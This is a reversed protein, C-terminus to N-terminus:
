KGKTEMARPHWYLYNIKECIFIITNFFKKWKRFQEVKGIFTQCCISRIIVCQFLTTCMTFLHYCFKFFHMNFNEKSGKCHTGINCDVSSSSLGILMEWFRTIKDRNIHIETSKSKWLGTRVFQSPLHCIIPIGWLEWWLFFLSFWFFLLLDCNFVLGLAFFYPICSKSFIM